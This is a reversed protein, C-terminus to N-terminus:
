AEGHLKGVPEICEPGDHDPRNVRRSVPYAGMEEAPYPKLLQLLHAPDQIAPDLWVPEAERTLIVPMRDHIPKLIENM